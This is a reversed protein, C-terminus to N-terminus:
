WSTGHRVRGGHASWVHARARAIRAIGHSSTVLLTGSMNMRSIQTHPIYKRNHRRLRIRARWQTSRHKSAHSDDDAM